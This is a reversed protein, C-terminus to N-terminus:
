YRKIRGNTADKYGEVYGEEYQNNNSNKRMEQFKPDSLSENPGPAYINYNDWVLGDRDKHTPPAIELIYEPKSVNNKEEKKCSVLLLPAILLLVLVKKM